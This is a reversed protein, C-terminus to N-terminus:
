NERLDTSLSHTVSLSLVEDDPPVHWERIIEYASRNDDGCDKVEEGLTVVGPSTKGTEKLKEKHRLEKVTLARTERNAKEDMKQYYSRPKMQNKLENSLKTAAKVAM